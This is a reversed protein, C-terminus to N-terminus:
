RSETIDEIFDTKDNFTENFADVGNQWALAGAPDGFSGNSKAHESHHSACSEAWALGSQNRRADKLSANTRRFASQFRPFSPTRQFITPM